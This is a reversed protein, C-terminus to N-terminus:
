FLPYIGNLSRISRFLIACNMAVQMSQGEFLGVCPNNLDFDRDQTRKARHSQNEILLPPWIFRYVRFMYVGGGDTKFTVHSHHLKKEFIHLPQGCFAGLRQM